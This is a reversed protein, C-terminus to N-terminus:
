GSFQKALDDWSPNQAEILQNKKERVWKKLQKERTIADNVDSFEEFYVLKHVHYKKTFGKIEESKHECVRRQLDNTVGIYIVSNTKNALIYIYYYMVQEKRRFSAQGTHKTMGRKLGLFSCNKPSGRPTSGTPCGLSLSTPIGNLIVYRKILILM